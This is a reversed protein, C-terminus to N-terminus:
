KVVLKETHRHHEDTWIITYVGPSWTSVDFHMERDGPAPEHRHVARGSLDTITLVPHSVWSGSLQVTTYGSAPNPHASLQLDSNEEISIGPDKSLVLTQTGIVDGTSLGNGNAFNAAVYVTTNNPANGSNWNFSWSNSGGTTGTGTNRHTIYNLGSKQTRPDTASISGQHGTGAEVSAEFGILTGQAGNNDATVTITYDTNDVFGSVPIDTSISITQATVSNGTHCGSIACTAGGAAPGGSRGAPAGTSNTLAHYSTGLMGVAILLVILISKRMSNSNEHLPNM